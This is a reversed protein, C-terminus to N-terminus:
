KGEDRRNKEMEREDRKKRGEIRRWVRGKKKETM